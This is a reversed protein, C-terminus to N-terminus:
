VCAAASCLDSAYVPFSGGHLSLLYILQAYYIYQSQPQMVDIFLFPLFLGKRKQRAYNHSLCAFVLRQVMERRINAWLRRRQVLMLVLVKGQQANLGTKDPM